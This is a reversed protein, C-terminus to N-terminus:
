VLGFDLIHHLRVVFGFFQDRVMRFWVKPHRARRLHGHPYNIEVCQFFRNETRLGGTAAEVMSKSNRFCSQTSFPQCREM